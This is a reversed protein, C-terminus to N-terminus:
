DKQPATRRNKSFPNAGEEYYAVGLIDGVTNLYLGKSISLRAPNGMHKQRCCPLIRLTINM